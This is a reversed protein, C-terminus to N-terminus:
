NGTQSTNGILSISKASQWGRLPVYIAQNLVIQQGQKSLVFSLFERLPAVLPKGPPSNLNAYVLRSLPYRASAVNEYTPAYFGESDNQALPLVKVGADIYAVGSYGIAYRDQAVHSALPFVVKEFSIDERREGRQGPLSLVRQRVFEEFGNWPKVGYVHISKDAWDGTLGVDGWTKYSKGSRFHTSSLIGDLQDFTLKEIPNAKNTFVAVADLFGFHRYSGGSIPISLPAYGFKAKFDTIDDPKLERSVFVLDLNGKVLEKAGLSGAYPPELDISVNPYFKHFEAIWQKVLGPLVDSAAVKYSGSLSTTVPRYEPLAPDLAPQLIEPQPLKRGQTRGFEEDAPTQPHNSPLAPVMWEVTSDPKSQTPPQDTQCQTSVSLMLAILLCGALLQKRMIGMRTRLKQMAAREIDRERMFVFHIRPSFENVV